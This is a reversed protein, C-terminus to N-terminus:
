MDSYPTVGAVILPAQSFFLRAARLCIARGMFFLCLISATHPLPVNSTHLLPKRTLDQTNAQVHLAWSHTQNPDLRLPTHHRKAFLM